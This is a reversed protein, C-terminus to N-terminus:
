VSCFGKKQPKSAPQPILVVPPTSSAKADNSASSKLLKRAVVEFFAEVGTGDKASTETFYINHRDALAKGQETTIQRNSELDVKNGVLFKESRQSYRTGETLHGEVDSFSEHEAIDYVVIIADANRYYSSTL